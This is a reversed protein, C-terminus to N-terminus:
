IDTLFLCHNKILLGSAHGVQMTNKCYPCFCLGRFINVIKGKAGRNYTNGQLINQINQFEAEDIIPPLFNKVGLFEGILVRNRLIKSITNGSWQCGSRFTKERRENLSDAMSYLTKGDQIGKILGRVIETNKNHIYTNSAKDFSFYKPVNNHAM